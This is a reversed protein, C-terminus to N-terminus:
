PNIMVGRYAIDNRTKRLQDILNIEFTSFEKHFKALYGVLLEHSTTKYGDIVMMATILEKVIEYYAEVILTSSEQKSFKNINKERLEILKLLSRAKERDKFGKSVEDSNENWEKM